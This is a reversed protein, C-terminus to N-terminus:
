QSVSIGKAIRAVEFGLFYKMPGLDKLKFKSDLLEKLAFFGDIDNSAILIDDVFVLLAISSAQHIGTFLSYFNKSKTFGLQLVTSFFKPFWQHSAQRLGDISKHLRYVKFEGKGFGPPLTM